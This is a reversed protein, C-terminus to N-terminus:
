NREELLLNDLVDWMFHNTDSCLELVSSEYEFTEGLVEFYQTISLDEELPLNNVRKYKQVLIWFTERLHNCEDKREQIQELYTKGYPYGM